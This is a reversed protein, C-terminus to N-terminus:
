PAKVEVAIAAVPHVAEEKDKKAKGQLFISFPGVVADAAATVTIPLEGAAMSGAAVTIGPPLQDAPAALAIEIPMTWEAARTARITVTATGGPALIVTAPDPSLSFQAVPRVATFLDTRVRVSRFVDADSKKPAPPALQLEAAPITSGEASTIRFKLEGWDADTSTAAPDSSTLVVPVTSQKAGLWFPTMQLASPLNVVEVRLPGDCHIRRVTLAMSGSGGRPVNIRDIPATVRVAQRGLYVDLAYTWASGGRGAIESVKLYFEGAGPLQAALEADRLGADDNEVIKGGDANYLELMVDAPSGVERTRATVLLPSAQAATLKFWDADGPTQLTGTLVHTEAPVATAETRANNPETEAQAAQQTLIVSNLASGDTEAPRFKVPILAGPSETVQLPAAEGLVEGATGILSVNHGAQAIRPSVATVMPLRGLRLHFFHRAGGSYRVDRVEVRYEGDAPATFQLQTDGEAGPMDDCYASEHGDPGTVRIVPDLDSGLRRAFIEINVTQGATMAIRFFRSLVPNLQGDICCPLVILQGSKRDESEAAIAVSPLDDIVAFAAESCGHNTVMRAPYIGPITEADIVGVMTVPQDKALDQGEKPRLVGVPTWLSMAGALQKGNVVVSATQGPHLNVSDLRDVVPDQAAASGASTLGAAILALFVGAVRSFCGTQLHTFAM